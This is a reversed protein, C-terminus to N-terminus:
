APLRTQLKLLDERLEAASAHRHLPNPQCAKLVIINLQMFGAPDSGSVLISPLEPFKEPPHGTALVYLMLGLSYVDARVTGPEEPPMFGPTGVISRPQQDPKIETLL